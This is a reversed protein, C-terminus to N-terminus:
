RAPEYGWQLLQRETSEAQKTAPREVNKTLVSPQRLLHPHSYFSLDQGAVLSSHHRVVSAGSSSLM